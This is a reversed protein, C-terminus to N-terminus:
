FDNGYLTSIPIEIDNISTNDKTFDGLFRLDELNLRYFCEMMHDDKDVPKNDKDWSYRNVEWLFRTMTPCV